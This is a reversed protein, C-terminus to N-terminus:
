SFLQSLFFLKKILKVNWSMKNGNAFVKAREREWKEKYKRGGVDSNDLSLQPYILNAKINNEWESFNQFMKKGEKAAGDSIKRQKEKKREGKWEMLMGGRRWVCERTETICCRNVAIQYWLVIWIIVFSCHILIFRIDRTWCSATFNRGNLIM